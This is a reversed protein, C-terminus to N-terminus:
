PLLRSLFRDLELCLASYSLTAAGQRAIINYDSAPFSGKHQRFYERLFRKVRNRVVAGGVRRSVTVGLRPHTCSTDARVIIFNQTYVKQGRDSVSLFESRKRLRESKQLGCSPVTM